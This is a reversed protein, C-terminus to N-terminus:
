KWELREALLDAMLRNGHDNFHCSDTFLNEDGFRPENFWENADCFRLGAANCAREVHERFKLYLGRDTFRKMSEIRRLDEEFCESEMQTLPKRTWGISAQLVYHVRVGTAAQLWGWTQLTNAVLRCVIGFQEDAQIAPPELEVRRVGGQLFLRAIRRFNDNKLWLEDFREHARRLENTLQQGPTESELFGRFFVDESYVGGIAPYSMAGPLMAICVDNMGSLLVINRQPPLLYKLLLYLLLEQQGTAGRQGWNVCPLGPKTLHRTITAEDSSATVGFLTSGGLMLNCESVRHALDRFDVPRGDYYHQVRFGFEDTNLSASRYNPEGMSTIFPRYENAHM